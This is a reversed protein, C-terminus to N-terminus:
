YEVYYTINAKAKLEDLWQQAADSMKSRRLQEKVEAKHAEATEGASPKMKQEKIYAEVEADTVEITGALVKEIKKQEMIQERLQAETMGQQALAQELTGGQSAVQAEIAKIETDIEEQAVTIGLSRLENDILTKQIRADLAQKGSRAELERIVSLRTIPSGNVTAAVVLGQAFALALLILVVVAALSIGITRRNVFLAFAGNKTPTKEEAHHHQHNEEMHELYM